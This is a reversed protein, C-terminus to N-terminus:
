SRWKDHRVVWDSESDDDGEGYKDSTDERELSVVFKTDITFKETMKECAKDKFFIMENGERAIYRKKWSSNWCWRINKKWVRIPGTEIDHRELLEVQEPAPRALAHVLFTMQIFVSFEPSQGM